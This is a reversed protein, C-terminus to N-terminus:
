NEKYFEQKLWEFFPETRVGFREFHIATYLQDILNVTDDFVFNQHQVHYSKPFFVADMPVSQVFAELENFLQVSLLEYKLMYRFADPIIYSLTLEENAYQYAV